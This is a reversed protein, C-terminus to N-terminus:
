ETCDGVEIDNLDCVFLEPVNEITQKRVNRWVVSRSYKDKTWGLQKRHEWVFKYADHEDAGRLHRSEHLLIAARETDDIPYTFFDPYITIIEFPFNTAAYANEKAVSANLWNDEARFISFHALLFIDNSFGRENLVAIAMRAKYGQEASLPRASAMLSIYFGLIALCCVVFCIVIRIAVRRLKSRKKPAADQAHGLSGGCRVCLDRERFNVLGCTPCKKNM